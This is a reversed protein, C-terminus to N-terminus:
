KNDFVSSALQKQESNMRSVVQQHKHFLSKVTSLVNQALAKQGDKASMMMKIIYNYSYEIMM